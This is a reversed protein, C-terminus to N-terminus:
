DLVNNEPLVKYRKFGQDVRIHMFLIWNIKKIM